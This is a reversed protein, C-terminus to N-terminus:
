RAPWRMARAPVSAAVLFVRRWPLRRRPRNESHAVAHHHSGGHAHHDRRVLMFGLMGLYMAADSSHTLWPLANAAGLGVLGVVAAWPVLMALAMEFGHRWGYGRIRMWVVMPWAMFLAMGIGQLSVPILGELPMYILMGVYMALVMEGFHLVFPGVSLANARLRLEPSATMPEISLTHTMAVLRV